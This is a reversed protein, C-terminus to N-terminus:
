HRVVNKGNVRAADVIRGAGTLLQHIAGAARVKDGVKLSFRSFGGPKMHIFDGSDLVVGNAEGHRAYNFYAVKGSCVITDVSTRKRPKRGEVSVLKIFNYVLHARAGKPSPSKTTAKVVLLQEQKLSLFADPADKDHRDVVIQVSEGEVDLLLGEVQGEPSYFVHQFKGEILQQNKEKV